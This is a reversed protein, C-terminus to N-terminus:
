ATPTEGTEAEADGDMARPGSEVWGTAALVALLLVATLLWSAEPGFDGGTAWLPGEAEVPLRRPLDLGSVPLSLWCALFVNWSAHFLTGVLLSGSAERLAALLLGVLFLNLLSPALVDPDGPHFLAFLLASLGAAHIWPLRERLVAYVYGRFIVEETFGLVLFGAALLLFGRLDLPLWAGMSELQDAPFDDQVTFTVWSSALLRWGALLGCGVAAAGLLQAPGPIGRRAPWALGLQASTRRDSAAFLGTIALIIPAVFVQLKFGLLAPLVITEGEDQIQWLEQVREAGELLYLLLSGGVYVCVYVVLIYFAIRLGFPRSPQPSEGDRNGPPEGGSGDRGTPDRGSQPEREPETM